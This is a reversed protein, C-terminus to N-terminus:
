PSPCLKPWRACFALTQQFSEQWATGAVCAGELPMWPFHPDQHRLVRKCSCSIGGGKLAQARSSLVLSLLPGQPFLAGALSAGRCRIEGDEATGEEAAAPGHDKGNDCRWNINICRGNNCTFQTLPFCTPYATSSASAGDAHPLHGPGWDEHGTGGTGRGWPPTLLLARWLARREWREGGQSVARPLSTPATGVTMTWTVRGPSPSAAGVPVPSSTPPAPGLQGPSLCVAKTAPLAKSQWPFPLSLGGPVGALCLHLPWVTQLAPLLPAYPGLLDPEARCRESCCLSHSPVATCARERNSRVRAPPTLSMRMTAATTTGMASGATPSAATTRASSVTLPAPTSTQLPSVPELGARRWGM